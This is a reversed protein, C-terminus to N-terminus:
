LVWQLSSRWDLSSPNVLKKRALVRYSIGLLYLVANDLRHGRLFSDDLPGWSPQINSIFCSVNETTVQRSKTM